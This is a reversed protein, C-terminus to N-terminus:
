AQNPTLFLYVDELSAQVPESFPAAGAATGIYRIRTLGDKRATSIVRYKNKFDAAAEAPLACEFIHNQAQATVQAPTGQTILKGHQMVAVKSAITEVDAVIHSSLIILCNEALGDILQRFRVREEPDLGVTPEDFILVKPDNLLAQAIGVRQKM